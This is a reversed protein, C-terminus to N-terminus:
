TGGRRVDTVAKVRGDERAVRDAASFKDGRETIDVIGRGPHKYKARAKADCATSAAPERRFVRLTM